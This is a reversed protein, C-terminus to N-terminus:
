VFANCINWDLLSSYIPTLIVSQISALYGLLGTRELIIADGDIRLKGLKTYVEFGRM